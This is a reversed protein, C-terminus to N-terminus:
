GLVELDTIRMNLNAFWEVASSMSIDDVTVKVRTPTNHEVAAFLASDYESINGCCGFPYESQYTFGGAITIHSICNSYVGNEESCRNYNLVPLIQSENDPIFIIDGVGGVAYEDDTLIVLYGTMELSGDFTAAGLFFYGEPHSYYSHVYFEASASKVTLGCISDGVYYRKYEAESIEPAGIFTFNENDYLEANEDINFSVGTPEALYVFGDCKANTWAYDSYTSIETIEDAAIKDMGPGYLDDPYDEKAVEKWFDDTTEETNETDATDESGSEEEASPEDEESTSEEEESTSEEEETNETTTPTNGETTDSTTTETPATTTIINEEGGSCATLLMGCVIILAIMTKKM